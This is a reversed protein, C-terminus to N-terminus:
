RGASSLPSIFIAPRSPGATSAMASQRQQKRSVDEPFSSSQSTYEITCGDREENSTGVRRMGSLDNDDDGYANHDPQVDNFRGSTQGFDSPVRYNKRRQVVKIIPEEQVLASASSESSENQLADRAGQLQQEDISSITNSATGTNGIVNVEIRDSADNNYEDSDDDDGDNNDVEMDAAENSASADNDDSSDRVLNRELWRTMLNSMREM